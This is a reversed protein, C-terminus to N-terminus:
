PLNDNNDITDKFSGVGYLPSDNIQMITSHFAPSNALNIRGGCVDDLSKDCLQITESPQAIM